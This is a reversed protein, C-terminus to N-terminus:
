GGASLMGGSAMDAEILEIEAAELMGTGDQDYRNFLLANYEAEDVMGDGNLDMNQYEGVETLGSDWETQDLAGSGDADFGSYTAMSSFGTVFEQPDLAGDGNTDWEAQALATTATAALVTGMLITRMM